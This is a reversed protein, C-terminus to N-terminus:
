QKEKNQKAIGLSVIEMKINMDVTINPMENCNVYQLSCKKEIEFSFRNDKTQRRNLKRKYAHKDFM